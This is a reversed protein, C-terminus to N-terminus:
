FINTYIATTFAFVTRKKTTSKGESSNRISRENGTEVTKAPGEETLLDVRIAVMRFEHRGFSIQSSFAVGCLSFSESDSFDRKPRMLSVVRLEVASTVELYWKAAWM